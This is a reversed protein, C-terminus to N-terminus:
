FVMQDLLEKRYELTKLRKENRKEENYKRTMEDTKCRNM